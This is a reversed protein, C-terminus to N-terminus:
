ALVEGSFHDTVEFAAGLSYTDFVVDIAVGHFKVVLGDWAASPSAFM